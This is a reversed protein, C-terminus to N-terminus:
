KVVVFQRAAMTGNSEFTYMYVGQALGISQASIEVDHSGASVFEDVLVTITRGTADTLLIRVNQSSPVTYSFRAVDMTPNPSASELVYGGPLIDGGAVGVTVDAVAVETTDDGCDNSVIVTTSVLM